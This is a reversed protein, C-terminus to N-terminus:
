IRILRCGLRGDSSEAGAHPECRRSRIPSKCADASRCLTTMPKVSTKVSAPTPRPSIAAGSTEDTVIAPMTAGIQWARSPSAGLGSSGPVGERWSQQSSHASEAGTTSGAEGATESGVSNMKAPPSSARAEGIGRTARARVGRWDWPGGSAHDSARARRPKTGQPPGLGDILRSSGDADMLERPDRATARTAANAARKSSGM